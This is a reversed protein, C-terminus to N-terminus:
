IVAGEARLATAFEGYREKPLETMANVGFSGLIGFLKQQKGQNVLGSAAVALQDYNYEQAVATTPVMGPPQMVPSSGTTVPPDVPVSQQMPQFGPAIPPVSPVPQRPAMGQTNVPAQQIPINMLTQQPVATQNQEQTKGGALSQIAATLEAMGEIVIKIENM